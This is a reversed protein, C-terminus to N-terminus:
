WPLWDKLFKYIGFSVFLTLLGIFLVSFAPPFPLAKIFDLFSM